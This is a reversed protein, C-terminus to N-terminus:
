QRPERNAWREDFAAQMESKIGKLAEVLDKDKQTPKAKKTIAGIREDLVGLAVGEADDYKPRTVLEILTERLSEAFAIVAHTQQV